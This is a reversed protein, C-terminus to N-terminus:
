IIEANMIKRWIENPIGLNGFKRGTKPFCNENPSGTREEPKKQGEVDSHHVVWFIRCVWEWFKAPYVM